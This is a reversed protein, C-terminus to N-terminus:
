KAYGEWTFGGATKVKGKVCKNINGKWIGTEKEAQLGSKYIKVTEGNLTKQIVPKSQADAKKEQCKGYNVNYKPSCWELNSACNNLKNEDKHNVQPHNNPNPLFAKAVLRHVLVCLTKGNKHLTIMPYGCRSSTNLLLIRCTKINMIRGFNSIKYFEEYGIIPKWKEESLPYLSKNNKM